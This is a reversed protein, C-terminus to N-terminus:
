PHPAGPAAPHKSAALLDKAQAPTLLRVASIATRSPMEGRVIVYDGRCLQGNHEVGEFGLTEHFPLDFVPTFLKILYPQHQGPAYVILSSDDLVTWDYLEVTMICAETGPLPPAPRTGAAGGANCGALALVAPWLATRMLKSHM